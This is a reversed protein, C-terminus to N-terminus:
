RIEVHVTLRAKRYCPVWQVDLIGLNPLLVIFLAMPKRSYVWQSADLVLARNGIAALNWTKM